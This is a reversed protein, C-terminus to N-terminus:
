FGTPNLEEQLARHRKYKERLKKVSTKVKNCGGLEKAHVLYECMEKYTYRDRDKSDMLNEAYLIYLDIIEARYDHLLQTEFERLTYVSNQEKVYEMLRDLWNERSCIDAYKSNKGNSRAQKTLQETFAPWEDAPVTQKLFKYFDLEEDYTNLYLLSAYKIILDRNGEKQAIRLMWHYWPLVSSTAKDKDQEIGDLALQYARQIDNVYLSEEIAEERFNKIHLNDLMLQRATDEGKWKLLLDKKLQMLESQWFDSQFEEDSDLAEMIDEYEEECNALNVLIGYLEINYSTGKFDDDDICTWCHEIFLLRCDEDLKLEDVDAISSLVRMSERIIFSLHGMSDDSHNATAIGNELACFCIDIASEYNGNDCFHEAAGLAKDVIEELHYQEALPIHGYNTGAEIFASYIQEVYAEGSDGKLFYTKFESMFDDLVEQIGLEKELFKRLEKEPIQKLIDKTSNAKKKKGM